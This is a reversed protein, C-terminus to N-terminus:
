GSEEMGDNSYVDCAQAIADGLSEGSLSAAYTEKLGWWFKPASDYKKHFNEYKEPHTVFDRAPKLLEMTDGQEACFQADRTPFPQRRDVLELVVDPGSDSINFTGIVPVWFGEQQPRIGRPSILLRRLPREDQSQAFGVVMKGGVGHEFGATEPSFFYLDLDVLEGTHKDLFAFMSEVSPDELYLNLGDMLAPRAPKSSSEAVTPASRASPSAKSPTATSASGPLTSVTTTATVTVPPPASPPTCASLSLAIASCLALSATTPLTPKM